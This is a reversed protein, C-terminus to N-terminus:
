EDEGPKLTFKIKNLFNSYTQTMSLYFLISELLDNKGKQTLRFYKRSSESDRELDVYEENTLEKLKTYLTSESIYSESNLITKMEKKIEYGYAKEKQFIISLMLM